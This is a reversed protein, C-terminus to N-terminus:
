CNTPRCLRQPRSRMAPEGEGDVASLVINVTSAHPLGDQGLFGWQTLVDKSDDDLKHNLDRCKMVLELFALAEYDQGGMLRRLTTMTAGAVSVGQESGNKLTVMRVETEM